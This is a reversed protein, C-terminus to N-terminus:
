PCTATRTNILALHSDWQDATAAIRRDSKSLRETAAVTKASTIMVAAKAKKCERAADRCVARATDFVALTEDEHWRAGDWQLWKAWADVYRLNAYHQEAFRLALADDSFQAPRPDTTASRLQEVLMAFELVNNDSM